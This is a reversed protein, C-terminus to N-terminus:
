VANGILPKLKLAHEMLIYITCTYVIVFIIHFRSISQAFSSLTLRHFFFKLWFNEKKQKHHLTHIPTHRHTHFLLLNFFEIRSHVCVASSISLIGKYAQFKSQKDISICKLKGASIFINHYFLKSNFKYKFYLKCNKTNKKKKWNFTSNKFITNKFLCM